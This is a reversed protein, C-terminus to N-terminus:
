VWQVGGWGWLQQLAAAQHLADQGGPLLVVAHLSCPTRPWPPPPPLPQRLGLGARTEREGPGCPARPFAVHAMQRAHGVGQHLVRLLPGICLLQLLEQLTLTPRAQPRTPHAPGGDERQM